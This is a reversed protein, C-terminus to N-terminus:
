GEWPKKRNSIRSESAQGELVTNPIEKIGPVPKGSTILEVIENFTMPYPPQEDTVNSQSQMSVDPTDNQVGLTQESHWKQYESFDLPTKFKRAYYFCKARMILHKAQEQDPDSGLIAQLGHQYEQDSDWPYSELAQFLDKNAPKQTSEIAM